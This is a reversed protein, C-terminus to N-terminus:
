ANGETSTWFVHKFMARPVAKNEQTWNGIANDGASKSKWRKEPSEEPNRM